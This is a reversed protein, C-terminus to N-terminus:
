QPAVTIEVVPGTAGGASRRWRMEYVRRLEEWAPDDRHVVKAIGVHWHGKLRVRVPQATLFNRWWTKAQAGQPVVVLREGAQAYQLPLSYQRQSRRGTYRLEITMGSLLRHAPSRLLALVLTNGQPRSLRM